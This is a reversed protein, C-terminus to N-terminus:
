LSRLTFPAMSYVKLTYDVQHEVPKYQALALTLRHTGPPLDFQVLCHPRNSYVGQRWCTELYYVRFGGREKFVHVTLYDDKGQDKRVTHRSLLIWVAAPKDGGVTM